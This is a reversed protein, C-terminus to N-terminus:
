PPQMSEAVRALEHSSYARGPFQTIVTVFDQQPLYLASAAESEWVEEESDGVSSSLGRVFHATKGDVVAISHYEAPVNRMNVGSVQMITLFPPTLPGNESPASRYVLSIHSGTISSRVLQLGGHVYTPMFLAGARGKMEKPSLVETQPPENLPSGYGPHTVNNIPRVSFTM